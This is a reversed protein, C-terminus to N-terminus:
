YAFIARYHKTQHQLSKLLFLLWNWKHMYISGPFKFFHYFKAAGITKLGALAIDSIWYIHLPIFVPTFRNGDYLNAGTKYLHERKVTYIRFLGKWNKIIYFGRNHTARNEAYQVFNYSYLKEHGYFVSKNQANQWYFTNFKFFSEFLYIIISLM